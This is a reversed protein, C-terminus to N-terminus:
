PVFFLSLPFILVLLSALGFVVSLDSFARAHLVIHPHASMIRPGRRPTQRAVLEVIHM